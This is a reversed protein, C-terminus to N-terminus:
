LYRGHPAQVEKMDQAVQKKLDDLKQDNDKGSLDKEEGAPKFPKEEDEPVSKPEPPPEDPKQVAQATEQLADIKKENVGFFDDELRATKDLRMKQVARPFQMGRREFLSKIKSFLRSIMSEATEFSEQLTNNILDEIEKSHQGVIEQNQKRYKWLNRLKAKQWMEWRFGEKEEEKEHRKMNRRLNQILDLEIAEFIARLNYADHRKQDQNQDKRQSM